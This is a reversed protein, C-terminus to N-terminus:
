PSERRALAGTKVTLRWSDGVTFPPNELKISLM